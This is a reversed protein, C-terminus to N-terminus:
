PTGGEPVARIARPLGDSDAVIAIGRGADISVFRASGQVLALLGVADRSLGSLADLVDSRPQAAEVVEVALLGGRACLVGDREALAARLADRENELRMVRAELRAFAALLEAHQKDLGPVRLAAAMSPADLAVRYTTGGDERTSPLVDVGNGATVYVPPPADDPPVEPPIVTDDLIKSPQRIPM